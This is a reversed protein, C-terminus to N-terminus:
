HVNRVIGICHCTFKLLEYIYRWRCPQGFVLSGGGGRGRDECSGKPVQKHLYGKLPM